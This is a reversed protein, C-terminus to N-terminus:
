RTAFIRTTLIAVWQWYIQGDEDDDRKSVFALRSGDPSFVASSSKLGEATLPRQMATDSTSLLWLRTSADGTEADYNTVQAVVQTGDPSVVARDVRDLQWLVEASLRQEEQSVAILPLFLAILVLSAKM